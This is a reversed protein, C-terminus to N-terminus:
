KLLLFYRSLLGREKYKGISLYFIIAAVHSCCGVTRSGVKCTCFWGDVSKGPSYQVFVKYIAESRHRSFFKTCVIRYSQSESQFEQDCVFLQFDNNKEFHENIYGIRQELQYSGYTINLQIDEITMTPFAIEAQDVLTTFNSHSLLKHRNVLREVTNAMKVRDKMARAMAQDTDKDIRLRTYLCNIIAAVIRYDDIIHPIM